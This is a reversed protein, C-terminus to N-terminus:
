SHLGRCTMNICFRNVSHLGRPTQSRCKKSVKKQQHFFTLRRLCFFCYKYFLMYKAKGCCIVYMEKLIFLFKFWKVCYSLDFNKATRSLHLWKQNCKFIFYIRSNCSLPASQFNSSNHRIIPLLSKLNIRVIIGIHKGIRNHSWYRLFPAPNDVNIHIRLQIILPKDIHESGSILPGNM